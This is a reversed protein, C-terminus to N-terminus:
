AAAAFHAMTKDYAAKTRIDYGAAFIHSTDVCVGIRDAAGIGRANGIGDIIARLEEFTSGAQNGQGATTELLVRVPPSTAEGTGETLDLLEGLADAIRKIATDTGAPHSGPHLVYDGIGLRSCRVLEDLM